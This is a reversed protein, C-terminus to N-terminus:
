LLKDPVRGESSPFACFILDIYKRPLENLPVIGVSKPLNGSRFSKLNSSLSIVPDIGASTHEKDQVYKIASQAPIDFSTCHSQQVYQQLVHSLVGLADGLIDGVNDTAGDTDGVVYPSVGSPISM